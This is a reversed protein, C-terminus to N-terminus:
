SALPAPCTRALSPAPRGATGPPSTPPPVASSQERADPNWRSGACTCSGQPNCWEGRPDESAHPVHVNAIFAHIRQNSHTCWWRRRRRWHTVRSTWHAGAAVPHEQHLCPDMSHPPPPYFSYLYRRCPHREEKRPGLFNPAHSRTRTRLVARRMPCDDPLARHAARHALFSLM